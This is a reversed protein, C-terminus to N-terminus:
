PIIAVYRFHQRYKVADTFAGGCTNCRQVTNTAKTSDDVQPQHALLQAAESDLREQLAHAKKAREENAEKELRKARKGQKDGQSM